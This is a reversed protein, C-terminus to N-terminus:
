MGGSLMGQTMSGNPEGLGMVIQSHCMIAALYNM